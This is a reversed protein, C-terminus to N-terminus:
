RVSHASVERESVALMEFSLVLSKHWLCILRDVFRERMQEDQLYASRKEM